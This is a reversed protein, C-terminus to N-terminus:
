AVKLIVWLCECECMCVCCPGHMHLYCNAYISTTVCVPHRVLYMMYCVAGFSGGVKLMVTWMVKSGFAVSAQPLLLSSNFLWFFFFTLFSLAVWWGEYAGLQGMSSGWVSYAPGAGWLVSGAPFLLRCFAEVTTISCSDLMSYCTQRSLM